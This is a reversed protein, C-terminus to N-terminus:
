KIRYGYEDNNFIWGVITGPRIDKFPYVQRTIAASGQGHLKQRARDM